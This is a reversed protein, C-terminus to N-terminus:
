HALQHGVLGYFALSLIGVYVLEAPLGRFSKPINCVALCKRGLHLLFVALLFGLGIGLGYIWADIGALNNYFSLAMAGFVANNFFLLIIFGMHNKVAKKFFLSAVVCVILFVLALAVIYCVPRWVLSNEMGSILPNLLSSGFSAFATVVSLLVCFFWVQGRKFPAMLLVSADLARSFITNELVLITMLLGFIGTEGM